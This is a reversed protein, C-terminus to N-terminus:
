VTASRSVSTFWVFVGAGALVVAAGFYFATNIGAYDVIAGALIPGVAMGINLATTFVAVTSGMGYRRGEEIVLASAAPTSVANGISGLIILAM